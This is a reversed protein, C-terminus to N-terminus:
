FSFQEKMQTTIFKLQPVDYKNAFKNCQELCRLIEQRIAPREAMTTGGAGSHIKDLAMVVQVYSPGLADFSDRGSQTSYEEIAAVTNLIDTKSLEEKAVALRAFLNGKDAFHRAKTSQEDQSLMIGFEPVSYLTELIAFSEQHGNEVAKEVYKMVETFNGSDYYSMGIDFFEQGSMKNGGFNYKSINYGGGVIDLM